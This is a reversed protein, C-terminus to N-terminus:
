GPIEERTRGVAVAHPEERQLALDAGHFGDALDRCRRRRDAGFRIEGDSAGDVLIGAAGAMPRATLSPVAATRSEDRRRVARRDHLHHTFPPVLHRGKAAQQTRLLDSVDASVDDFRQRM